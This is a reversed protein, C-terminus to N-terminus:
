EDSAEELLVECLARIADYPSVGHGCQVPAPSPDDLLKIPTGEAAVFCPGRKHSVETVSFCYWGDTENSM